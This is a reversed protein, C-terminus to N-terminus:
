FFSAGRIGAVIFVVGTAIPLVSYAIIHIVTGATAGFKQKMPELKGLKKPNAFRLYTFYLGVALVFVGMSITIWNM